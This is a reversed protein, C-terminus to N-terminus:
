YFDMWIILIVVKRNKPLNYCLWMKLNLMVVNEFKVFNLIIGYLYNGVCLVYESM